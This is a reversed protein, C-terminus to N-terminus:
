AKMYKPPAEALPNCPSLASGKSVTCATHLLCFAVGTNQDMRHAVPHAFCYTKGMNVSTPYFKLNDDVMM